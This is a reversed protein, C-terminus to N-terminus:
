TLNPGLKEQEEFCSLKSNIKKKLVILNCYFHIFFIDNNFEKNNVGILSEVKRAIPHNYNARAHPKEVMRREVLPSSFIDLDLIRLNINLFKPLSTSPNIFLKYDKM